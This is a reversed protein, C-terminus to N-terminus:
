DFKNERGTLDPRYTMQSMAAPHRCAQRSQVRAPTYRKNRASSAELLSVIMMGTVAGLTTGVLATAVMVAVVTPIDAVMNAEELVTTATTAAGVLMPIDVVMSAEEPVTTATTAPGALTGSTDDGSTDLGSNQSTDWASTDASSQDVTPDEGLGMNPDDGSVSNDQPADLGTYGQDQTADNATVDSNDAEQVPAQSDPIASDALGMNPDTGSVSTDTSPDLGM